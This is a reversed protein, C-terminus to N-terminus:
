LLLAAAALALGAGLAAAPNDPDQPKNTCQNVMYFGDTTPCEYQDRTIQLTNTFLQAVGNKEYVPELLRNTGWSFKAKYADKQAQSIVVPDKLVFWEVVELCPPTTLSGEYRYYEGQVKGNQVGLFANLDVADTAVTAGALRRRDGKPEEEKDPLDTFKIADFFDVASDLGDVGDANVTLFRGIVLLDDLDNNPDEDTAFALNQHVVHVVGDYLGNEDTNPTAPNVAYESPFHPHFQIARYANGNYTVTGFSGDESNPTVKGSYDLMGTLEANYTAPIKNEETLTDQVFQAPVNDLMIPSQQRGGCSDMTWREESQSAYLDQSAGGFVTQLAAASLLLKLMTKM